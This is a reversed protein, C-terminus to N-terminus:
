EQVQRAIQRVRALNEAHEILKALADELEFKFAPQDCPPIPKRVSRSLELIDRARAIPDTSPV